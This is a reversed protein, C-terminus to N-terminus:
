FVTGDSVIKLPPGGDSRLSAAARRGAWWTGGELVKALPLEASTKGLKTRVKEAIRELLVVTLARWEIVLESDPRHSAQAQSQDRLEILGRDLLLGGNRYEALGTLEEVGVVDVGGEILPEILSYTLWQSLKHFPILSQTTGQSGLLPHVWVDGLNTSGLQIRGPWIPGLGRLVAGLLEPARITKSGRGFFFDVLNGPRAAAGGQTPFHKSDKEITRGLQRLLELRGEVGVLPNTTSVQFGKELAEKSLKQLGKADAQLPRAPDSSFAGDIFMRFSAIALGESRGLTCGTSPERYRWGMGAGADLLVSVIALDLKARAKEAAGVGGLLADLEKLRDIKKGNEGAQFHGWRSHFPIKLDPYNELTVQLVFESVEDLKEDRVRFHTGGGVAAEYLLKTRARIAQPSLLFEVDQETFAINNM